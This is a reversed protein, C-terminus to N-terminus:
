LKIKVYFQYLFTTPFVLLYLLKLNPLTTHKLMESFSINAAARLWNVVICQKILFIFNKSIYDYQEDINIKANIFRDLFFQYSKPQRMLSVEDDDRYERFARNVFLAKYKRAFRYQWIGEQFFKHKEYLWYDTPFLDVSRLKSTEYCTLNEQVRKNVYDNELKSAIYEKGLMNKTLPFSVSYSGDPRRALTRITGVEELKNEKIERWKTQLFEVLESDYVDDDDLGEFYKTDTNDLAVKFATHKGGNTKNIFKIALKEKQMIRSVVEDTNDNSGDCVILWVFDQNTQRLLCDEVRSLFRARNYTPTFMTILVKGSAILKKYSDNIAVTYTTNYNM